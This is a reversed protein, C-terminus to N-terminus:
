AFERAVEDAIGKGIGHAEALDGVIKITEQFMEQAFLDGQARKGDLFAQVEAKLRNLGDQAGDPMVPANGDESYQDFPLHPTTGCFPSTCNELDVQFVICAGEVDTTESHSWSVGTVRIRDHGATENYLYGPWELIERVSPSLAAFAEMLGAHLKDQACKVVTHRETDKDHGELEVILQGDKIKAKAIRIATV